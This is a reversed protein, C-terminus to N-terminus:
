LATEICAGRKEPYLKEAYKYDAHTLIQRKLILMGRHPVRWKVAGICCGCAM